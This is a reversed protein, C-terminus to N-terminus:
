FICICKWDYTKDIVESNDGYEIRKGTSDYLHYFFSSMLSNYVLYITDGEWKGSYVYTGLIAQGNGSPWQGAIELLWDPLQSANVIEVPIKGSLPGEVYEPYDNNDQSEEDSCSVNIGISLAIILVMSVLKFKWMIHARRGCEMSGQPTTIQNKKM